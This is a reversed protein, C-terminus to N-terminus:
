EPGDFKGERDVINEIRGPIPNNPIDSVLGIGMLDDGSSPFLESRETLHAAEATKWFPFLTRVVGKIDAVASCRYRRGGPHGLRATQFLFFEPDDRNDTVPRHRRPHGKLTHVPGPVTILIQDNNEIVVFHRDGRIHTGKRRIQVPDHGSLGDVSQALLYFTKEFGNGADALLHDFKGM